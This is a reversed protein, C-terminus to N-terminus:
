GQENLHMPAYINRPRKSVRDGKLDLHLHIPANQALQHQHISSRLLKHGVAQEEEGGVLDLAAAEDALLPVDEDHVFDPFVAPPPPLQSLLQQVPSLTKKQAM